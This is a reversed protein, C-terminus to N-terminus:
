YVSFEGIRPSTSEASTILLRVQSTTVPAFTIDTTPISTGTYIDTWTSGNLRQVKFGTVANGAASVENINVKNITNPKSFTYSLWAQGNTVTNSPNLDAKGSGGASGGRTTDYYPSWRTTSTGDAANGAIISAEYRLNNGSTDRMSPTIDHISDTWLTTNDRTTAAKANPIYGFERGSWLQTTSNFDSTVNSSANVKATLALNVAPTAHVGGTNVLAYGISPDATVTVAGNVVPLTEAFSRGASTLRYLDLSTKSAFSAPLTWTRTGGNTSYVYIKSNDTAPIFRDGGDAVTVAGTKVTFVGTSKNVAFTTKGAGTGWTTVVQNNTTDDLYSTLGQESVYANLLSYYFTMKALNSSNQNANSVANVNSSVPKDSYLDGWVYDTAQPNYNRTDSVVTNGAMLFSGIASPSQLNKFLFGGNMYKEMSFYETATYTGLNRWHDVQRMKAYREDATTHGAQATDTMVDQYVIKPAYFRKVFDDQRNIASPLDTFHDNFTAPWGFVNAGYSSVGTDSSRNGYPSATTGRLYSPSVTTMDTMNTHFSLDGGLADVAEKATIMDADTGLAPNFPLENINPWGYDHGRGQWGVYEYSQTGAGDTMNQTQRQIEKLQALTTHPVTFSQTNNGTPDGPGPFAGHTQSWNGGNFMAKLDAPMQPLQKRLWLASDQWDVHGDGNADGGTINIRSEYTIDTLTNLSTEKKARTGGSLRYDYVPDSITGVTGTSTDSVDVSYPWNFSNPTYITASAANNWVFANALKDQHHSAGSTVAKFFEGGGSGPAGAIAAGPQSSPVSLATTGLQVAFRDAPDDGTVSSMRTTLVTGVVTFDYGLTVTRATGNLVVGPLTLVYSASNTATRNYTVTPNYHSGNIIVDYTTGGGTLSAGSPTLTYNVAQPFNKDLTVALDTSTIDDPAIVAAPAYASYNLSYFTTDTVSWGVLGIQGLTPPTTLGARKFPRDGQYYVTNDVTVTLSDGFYAVSLTHQGASLNVNATVDGGSPALVIDHKVGGIAERIRISTSQELGVWSYNDADTARFLIGTRMNSANAINLSASAFGNTKSSVSNDRFLLDGSNTPSHLRASNTGYSLDSDSGTASIRTFNGLSGAFTNSYTYTDRPTSTLNTFYVNASSWTALGVRGAVKPTGIKPRNGNYVSQGGITIQLTDDFYVVTFKYTGPAFSTPVVKDSFTGNIKERIRVHSSDDFAAFSYNDADVARFIVGARYQSDVNVQLSVTGDTTVPSQSDMRFVEGLNSGSVGARQNAADYVLTGHDDTALKTFQATTDTAFSNTYTPVDAAAAPGGAPGLTLFAAAM